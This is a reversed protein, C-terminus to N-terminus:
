PTRRPLHLRPPLELVADDAEPRPTVFATCAQLNCQHRQRWTDRHRGACQGDGACSKTPLFAEPVDCAAAHKIPIDQKFQTYKRTPHDLCARYFAQTQHIRRSAPICSYNTTIVTTKEGATSEPLVPGVVNDM